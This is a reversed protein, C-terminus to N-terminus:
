FRAFWCLLLCFRYLWSRRMMQQRQEANKGQMYRKAVSTVEMPGSTLVQHSAIPTARTWPVSRVSSVLLGFKSFALCSGPDAHVRPASFGNLSADGLMGNRTRPTVRIARPIERPSTTIMRTWATKPSRLSSLAGKHQADGPAIENQPYLSHPAYSSGIMPSRNHKKSAHLWQSPWQEWLRRDSFDGVQLM